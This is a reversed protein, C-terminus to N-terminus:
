IEVQPVHSKRANALLVNPDFGTSLVKVRLKGGERVCQLEIATGVENTTPLAAVTTGRGSLDSHNRSLVQYSRDLLEKRGTNGLNM